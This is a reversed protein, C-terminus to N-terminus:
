GGRAARRVMGRSARRRAEVQYQEEEDALLRLV